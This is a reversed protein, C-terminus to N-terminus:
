SQNEAPKLCAKNSTRVTGYNSKELMHKMQHLFLPKRTEVDGPIPCRGDQERSSGHRANDAPEEYIRPFLHGDGAIVAGSSREKDSSRFHTPLRLVGKQGEFDCLECVLPDPM